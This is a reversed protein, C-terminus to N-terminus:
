RIVRDPGKNGEGWAGVNENVDTCEIIYLMVFKGSPAKKGKGKRLRYQWPNSSSFFAQHERPQRHPDGWSMMTQRGTMLVELKDLIGEDDDNASILILYGALLRNSELPQTAPEQGIIGPYTAELRKKPGRLLTGDPEFVALGFPQDSLPVEEVILEVTKLRPQCAAAARYRVCVLQNGYQEHLKQTGKQGPQWTVQARVTQSERALSVEARSMVGLWTCTPYRAAYNRGAAMAM